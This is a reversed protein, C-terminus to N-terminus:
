LELCTHLVSQLSLLSCQCSIGVLSYRQAKSYAPTPSASLFSAPEATCALPLRVLSAPRPCPYPFLLFQRSASLPPLSRTTVPSDGLHPTMAANMFHVDGVQLGGQPSLFRTALGILRWPLLDGPKAFHLQLGLVVVHVDTLLHTTWSPASPSPPWPPATPLSRALSPSYTTVEPGGCSEVGSLTRMGSRYMSRSGSVGKLGSSNFSFCFFTSLILVSM